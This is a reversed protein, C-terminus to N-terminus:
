WEWQMGDWSHSIQPPESTPTSDFYNGNAVYSVTGDRAVPAQTLTEWGSFRALFISVGKQFKNLKLKIHYYYKLRVLTHSFWVFNEHWKLPTVFLESTWWLTVGFKGSGVLSETRIIIPPPKQCFFSLADKFTMADEFAYNGADLTTAWGRLHLCAIETLMDVLAVLVYVALIYSPSRTAGVPLCAVTMSALSLNVPIIRERQIPCSPVHDHGRGEEGTSHPLVPCSWSREEGTWNKLSIRDQWRRNWHNLVHDRLVLHLTAQREGEILRHLRRYVDSVWVM